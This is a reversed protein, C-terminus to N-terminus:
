GERQRLAEYCLIAASVSVNLSDVVGKMPIRCNVDSKNRWFESLGNQESGFVLASKKTLDCSSYKKKAQPLSSIIQYHFKKLYSFIEENSTLLVPQLFVSGLSARIVNVNFVDVQKETVFVADVGAGDCSRLIAGLNGPKEISEVVMVCGNEKLKIDSLSLVPRQCLAIIGDRMSGFSMKEFVDASVDVCKIKKNDLKQLLITLDDDKIKDICLYVEIFTVGSEFACSIERCGEVIIRDSKRSKRRLAVFAKIKPNTLSTLVRSM